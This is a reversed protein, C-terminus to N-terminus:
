SLEEYKFLDSKRWTKYGLYLTIKMQQVHSKNPIVRVLIFSNVLGMIIVNKSREVWQAVGIMTVPPLVQVQTM